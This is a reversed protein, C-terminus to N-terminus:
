KVLRLTLPYQYRQGESAKLAAMITFVLWAIAIVVLLLLPLVLWFTFLCVAAAISVTINFNLSEKGHYDVYPMTDKKIIWLILPGVINGVFPVFLGALAILHCFM